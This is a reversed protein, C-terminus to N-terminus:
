ITITSKIVKMWGIVEINFIYFQFVLIPKFHEPNFSTFHTVNLIYIKLLFNSLYDIHIVSYSM